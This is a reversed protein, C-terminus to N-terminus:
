AETKDKKPVTPVVSLFLRLQLTELWKQAKIRWIKVGREPHM